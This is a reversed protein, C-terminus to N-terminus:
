ARWRAPSTTAAAGARRWHLPVPVLVDAEDLLEAGARAMWRGMTPALDTRDHYKLAHVLTRAVDDYRVAARARRYAPPNAIAEM